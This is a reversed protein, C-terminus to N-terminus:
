PATPCPKLNGPEGAFVDAGVPSLRWGSASAKAQLSSVVASPQNPRPEWEGCGSILWGDPIWTVSIPRFSRLSRVEARLRAFSEKTQRPEALVEYMKEWDKAVQFDVMRAVAKRLSERDQDPVARYADKPDPGKRACSLLVVALLVTITIRFVGM